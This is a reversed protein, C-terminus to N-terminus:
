GTEKEISQKFFIKTISFTQKQEHMTRRHVTASIDTTTKGSTLVPKALTHIWGDETGISNEAPM